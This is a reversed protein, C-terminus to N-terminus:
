GDTKSATPVYRQERCHICEYIEVSKFPFILVFHHGRRACLRRWPIDMLCFLAAASLTISVGVAFLHYSPILIHWVLFAVGALAFLVVARRIDRQERRHADLAAQAEVDPRFDVKRQM